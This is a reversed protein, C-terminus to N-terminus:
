TCSVMMRPILFEAGPKLKHRQSWSFFKRQHHPGTRWPNNCKVGFTEYAARAAANSGSRGCFFCPNPSPGMHHNNTQKKKKREKFFFVYWGDMYPLNVHITHSLQNVQLIMLTVRNKTPDKQQKEGVQFTGLSCM